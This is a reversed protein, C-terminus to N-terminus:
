KKVFELSSLSVVQTGAIIDGLHRKDKRFLGMCLMIVALLMGALSFVVSIWSTSEAYAGHIVGIHALQWPLFKACNRILSRLFSPTKYHVMLGAKRKGFTGFPKCFDLVSFILVIPIVSVFIAIFQTQIYTFRPIGKVVLFFLALSIAFLLALYLLIVIYDILIEKLRKSVKIPNNENM